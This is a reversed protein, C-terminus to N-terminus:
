QLAPEKPMPTSASQPKEPKQSETNSEAKADPKKITQGLEKTVYQEWVVAAKDASQTHTEIAKNQKGVFTELCQRFKAVKEDFEEKDLETVFQLPKQPGRCNPSELYLHAHAQSSLVALFLGLTSLLKVM